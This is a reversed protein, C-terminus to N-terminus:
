QQPSLSALRANERLSTHSKKLDRHMHLDINERVTKQKIFSLGYSGFSEYIAAFTPREISSQVTINTALDSKALLPGM